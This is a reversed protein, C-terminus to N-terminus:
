KSEELRKGLEANVEKLGELEKVLVQNIPQPVFHQKIMENIYNM